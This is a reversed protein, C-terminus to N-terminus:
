SRPSAGRGGAPRRLRAVFRDWMAPSPERYQDGTKPKKGARTSSAAAPEAAGCVMCEGSGLENNREQCNDCFWM